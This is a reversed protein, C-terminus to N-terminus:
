LGYHGRVKEEYESTIPQAEYFTPSGQVQDKDAAFEIRQNDDDVTAIEFPIIEVNLSLFDRKVGLYRSGGGSDEYLRQVTGIKEGKRDYVEYGPFRGEDQAFRDGREIGQEEPEM